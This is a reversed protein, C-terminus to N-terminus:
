RDQFIPRNAIDRYTAGADSYHESDYRLRNDFETVSQHPYNLGLGPDTIVQVPDGFETVVAYESTDVIFLGPPALMSIVGLAAALVVTRARWKGGAEGNMRAGHTLTATTEPGLDAAARRAM